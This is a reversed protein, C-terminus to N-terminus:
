KDTPTSLANYWRLHTPSTTELIDACQYLKACKTKNFSNLQKQKQEKYEEASM